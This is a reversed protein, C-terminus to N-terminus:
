KLIDGIREVGVRRKSIRGKVRMKSFSEEVGYHVEGTIENVRGSWM